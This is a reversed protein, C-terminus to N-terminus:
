FDEPLIYGNRLAGAFVEVELIMNLRTIDELDRKLDQLGEAQADYLERVGQSDMFVDSVLDCNPCEVSVVWSVTGAMRRRNEEILTGNGVPHCLGDGCSKCQLAEYATAKEPYNDGREPNRFFM